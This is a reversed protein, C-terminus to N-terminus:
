KKDIHEIFEVIGKNIAGEIHLSMETFVGMGKLEKKVFVMNKDAINGEIFKQLDSNTIQKKSALEDITKGLVAENKRGKSVAFLWVQYLGARAYKEREEIENIGYKYLFPDAKDRDHKRGNWSWRYANNEDSYMVESWEKKQIIERTGSFNKEGVVVCNVAVRGSFIFDIIVRGEKDVKDRDLDVELRNFVDDSSIVPSPFLYDQEMDFAYFVNTGDYEASLVQPTERVFIDYGYVITKPKKVLVTDTALIKIKYKGPSVHKGYQDTGDWRVEAPGALVRGMDTKKEIGGKVSLIQVKVNADKTIKFPIVVEAFRNAMSVSINKPFFEQNANVGRIEKKKVNIGFPKELDITVTTIKPAGVEKTEPDKVNVEITYKGSFLSETKVSTYLVEVRDIETEIIDGEIGETKEKLEKLTIPTEGSKVSSYIIPYGENKGMKYKLDKGNMEETITKKEHKIIETAKEDQKDKKKIKIKYYINTNFKVKKLGGWVISNKGANGGNIGSYWVEEGGTDSVKISYDAKKDLTFSITTYNNMREPNIKGPIVTLNKIEIGEVIMFPVKRKEKKGSVSVELLCVYSGPELFWGEEDKGDWSISNRGRSVKKRKVPHIMPIGRSDLIAISVVAKKSLQFLITATERAPSLPSPAFRLEEIVYYTEVRVEKKLVTKRFPKAFDSLVMEVEYNGNDVVDGNDNRGDWESEFSSKASIRKKVLNRVLIRKKETLEYIKIDVNSENTLSVKIITSNNVSSGPSIDTNSIDLTASYLKLPLFIFLILTFLTIKKM